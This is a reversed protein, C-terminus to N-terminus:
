QKAAKSARLEAAGQKVQALIAPTSVCVTVAGAGFDVQDCIANDPCKAGPTNKVNGCAAVLLAVFALVTLHRTKM